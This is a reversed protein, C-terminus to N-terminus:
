SQGKGKARRRESIELNDARNMRKWFRGYLSLPYQFPKESYSKITNETWQRVPDEAVDMITQKGTAYYHGIATLMESEAHKATERLERRISDSFLAQRHVPEFRRWLSNEVSHEDTNLMYGSQDGSVQAPKFVSLCPASTGTLLHICRQRGIASIMSGCTQSRRIPGAAHMCIDANSGKAPDQDRNRHFRLIEMAGSLDAEIGTDPLGTIDRICRLATDMRKRSKALFPMLPAEFTKRFNLPGKGTLLRNKRAYSEIGSSAMDYDTGITLCNSIAAFDVAKRAAWHRGATELVWSERSDAIIFSNDYRFRRDRYGCIGGQGHAELLETIVQLAHRATDGRELGLRVLDMGILGDDKEMVRTFVAENGIVVGKDNAGMEAGWTWFPKSLLVGHSGGTQNVAIYTADTKNKLHQPAPPIRVVLQAEGPERDSNKAFLTTNNRRFVFTDCM